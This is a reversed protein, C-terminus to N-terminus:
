YCDVCLAMQTRIGAAMHVERDEPRTIDLLYSAQCKRCKACIMLDGGLSYNNRWVSPAMEFRNSPENYDNVNRSRDFDNGQVVLGFLLWFM